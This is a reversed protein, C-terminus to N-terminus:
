FSKITSFLFSIGKKLGIIMIGVPMLVPILSIVTEYLPKFDLGSVATSIEQVFTKEEM